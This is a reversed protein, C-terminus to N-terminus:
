NGKKSKAQESRRERARWTSPPEFTVPSHLLNIYISARKHSATKCTADQLKRSGSRPQFSTSAVPSLGHQQLRVHILCQVTSMSVNLCSVSTFINIAHYPLIVSVLRSGAARERWGSKMSIYPMARLGRVCALRLHADPIGFASSVKDLYMGGVTTSMCYM